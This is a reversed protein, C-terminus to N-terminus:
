IVIIKMYQLVLPIFFVDNHIQFPIFVGALKHFINSYEEVIKGPQCMQSQQQIEHYGQNACSVAKVFKYFLLFSEVETDAVFYFFPMGIYCINMINIMFSLHIVFYLCRYVLSSKINILLKWKYYCQNSLIYILITFRFVNKTVFATQMCGYVNRLFFYSISQLFYRIAHNQVQDIQTHLKSCSHM